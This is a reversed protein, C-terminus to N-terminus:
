HPPAQGGEGLGDQGRGLLTLPPSSVPHPDFQRSLEEYAQPTFPVISPQQASMTFLPQPPCYRPPPPGGQAGLSGAVLDLDAHGMLVLFCLLPSQPQRASGETPWSLQGRCQKGQSSYM